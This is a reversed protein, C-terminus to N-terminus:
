RLGKVVSLAGPPNVPVLRGDVVEYYTPTASQITPGKAAGNTLGALLAQQTGLGRSGAPTVLNWIAAQELSMSPDCLAKGDGCVGAASVSDLEEEPLVLKKAISTAPVVIALLLTLVVPASKFPNM